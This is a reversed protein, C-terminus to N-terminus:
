YIRDLRYRVTRYIRVIRNRINDKLAVSLFLSAFERHVDKFVQWVDGMSQPHYDYAAYIVDESDVVKSIRFVHLPASIAVVTDFHEQQIIKCAEQWNTITNFSLSDHLIDGPPIGMAILFQEMPHPQGRWLQWDYGGVCIITSILGQQYLSAAKTARHESDPGLRTGSPDYDGFFVVGADVKAGAPQESIFREVHKYYLYVILVDALLVAMFILSLVFFGRIDSWQKKM